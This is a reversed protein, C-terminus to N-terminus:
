WLPTVNFLFFLLSCSTLLVAAGSSVAHCLCFLEPAMSADRTGRSQGSCGPPARSSCARSLTGSAASRRSSFAAIATSSLSGPPSPLFPALSFTACHEAAHVSSLHLPLGQQECAGCHSGGVSLGGVKACRQRNHLSQHEHRWPTDTRRWLRMWTGIKNYKRKFRSLSQPQYCDSSDPQMDLRWDKRAPAPVCKSEKLAVAHQPRSALGVDTHWVLGNLFYRHARKDQGAQRLRPSTHLCRAQGGPPACIM